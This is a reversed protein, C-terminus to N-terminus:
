SSGPASIVASIPGQYGIFIGAPVGVHIEAGSRKVAAITEYDVSALSM